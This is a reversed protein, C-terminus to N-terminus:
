PDLGPRLAPGIGIGCVVSALDDLDGACLVRRVDDLLHAVAKDVGVEARERGAQERVGKLKKSLESRVLLSPEEGGQQWVILRPDGGLDGDAPAQKGPALPIDGSTGELLCQASCLPLMKRIEGRPQPLEAVNIVHRVVISRSAGHPDAYELERPTRM